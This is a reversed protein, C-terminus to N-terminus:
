QQRKFFHMIVLSGSPAPEDSIFWWELAENNTTAKTIVTKGIISIDSNGDFDFDMDGQMTGFGDGAVTYTGTFPFRHLVLRDSGPVQDLLDPTNWTIKGTINGSGDATVIGAATEQPFVNGSIPDGGGQETATFAYEGQISAESFGGEAAVTFPMGKSWPGYGESNYTRIWWKASGEALTTTPTVSCTGTGSGCGAQTKNYWESIVTGTTDEVIMKYYTAVADANWTYTPTYDHITGSPSVLTVQGPPAAQSEEVNGFALLLCLVLLVRLFTRSFDMDKLRM